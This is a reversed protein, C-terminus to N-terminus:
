SALATSLTKNIGGNVLLLSREIHVVFLTVQGCKYTNSDRTTSEDLQESNMKRRGEPANAEEWENKRKKMEGGLISETGLTFSWEFTADDFGFSLGDVAFAIYTWATLFDQGCGHGSLHVLAEAGGRAAGGRGKREFELM